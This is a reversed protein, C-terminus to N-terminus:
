SVVASTRLLGQGEGRYRASWFYNFRNSNFANFTSYQEVITAVNPNAYDYNYFAATYRNVLTRGGDLYYPSERWRSYSIYWCTGPVTPCLAQSSKSRGEFRVYSGSSWYLRHNSQVLKYGPPDRTILSVTAVWYRRQVALSSRESPQPGASPAGLSSSQAALADRLKAQKMKEAKYTKAKPDVVIDYAVPDGGASKEGEVSVISSDEKETAGEVRTYRVDDLIYDSDPAPKLEFSTRDKATGSVETSPQAQSVQGVLLFALLVTAIGLSRSGLVVYDGGKGLM